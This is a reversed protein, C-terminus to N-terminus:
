HKDLRSRDEELLQRASPGAPAATSLEDGLRFWNELWQQTEARRKTEDEAPPSARSELGAQILEALLDRLKRRERTALTKVETMLQDPLDVTTKM